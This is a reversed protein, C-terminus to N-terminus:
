KWAMAGMWMLVHVGWGLGVIVGCMEEGVDGEVLEQILVEGLHVFSFEGRENFGGTGGTHGRGDPFAGATCGGSNGGALLFGDFHVDIERVKELWMGHEEGEEMEEEAAAM